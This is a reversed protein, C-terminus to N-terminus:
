PWPRAAVQRGADTRVGPLLAPRANAREDFFDRARRQGRGTVDLACMGFRSGLKAALQGYCLHEGLFGRRGRAKTPITPALWAGISAVLCLFSNGRRM